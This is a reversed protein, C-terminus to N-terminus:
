VSRPANEAQREAHLEFPACGTISRFEQIMHSQDYYGAEVAIRAWAPRPVRDAEAVARNLRHIRQFQKAGLGTAVRVVRRLHRETIRMRRAVAELRLDDRPITRIMEAADRALGLARPARAADRLERIETVLEALAQATTTTRVLRDYLRASRARHITHYPADGDAHEAPDAGFLERSWEPHVRVAELHLMGSPAFLQVTRVPGQLSLAAESVRGREDRWCHFYLSVGLEPLLRHSARAPCARSALPVSYVWTVDVIRALDSPPAYERYGGLSRIPDPVIPMTLHEFTPHAGRLRLAAPPTGSADNDDAQRLGGPEALRLHRQRAHRGDRQVRLDSGHAPLHDIGGPCRDGADQQGDITRRHAGLRRRVPGEHQDANRRAGPGDTGLDDAVRWGGGIVICREATWSV